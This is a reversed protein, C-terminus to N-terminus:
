ATTKVVMAEVVKTVAVATKTAQTDAVAANAVSTDMVEKLPHLLEAM